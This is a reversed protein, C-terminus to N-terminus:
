VEERTAFGGVSFGTIMGAKVQDWISQDRVYVCMVWSGKKVAQGNMEFDVPAIYSERVCADAPQSHRYGVTRSNELYYHASKEIEQASMIDDQTDVMEPELVVGYLLQRDTDAKIIKAEVVPAEKAVYGLAALALETISDVGTDEKLTMQKRGALEYKQWKDGQAVVIHQLPADKAPMRHAHSADAQEVYKLTIHPSYGHARSIGVGKGGLAQVVSQRLDPLIPADYSAYLVDKGDSTDSGAFRGLGGVRGQVPGYELAIAQAAQCALEFADDPLGESPSYSLTVHMKDAEEGGDVCLDKAVESPVQLAVMVGKHEKRIAALHEATLSGSKELAKSM